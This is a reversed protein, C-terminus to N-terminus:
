SFARNLEDVDGDTLRLAGASANERVHAPSGSEPIAIVRGSRITWALAVTAPSSQHRQAVRVLGANKLLEGGRGLPSYAMIPLAHRDSWALLDREIRRDALNYAVQNAACNRGGDVRLLEEMDGVDFNSVGWRRIQGEARLSEFAQVVVSLDRVGTRWHLLYLDLYNTALRALSAKCASRIGEPTAHSPWVKSVVFVKDRQRAIVRGIMRESKGDGYIEATDLLTMGLSIGTRLAEEEQAAPHRGTALGASGQGLAPIRSGDPLKVTPMGSQANAGSGGVSTAAVALGFHRRTLGIM